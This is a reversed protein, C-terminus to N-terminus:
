TDDPITLNSQSPAPPHVQSLVPATTAAADAVEGETVPGAGNAGERKEEEEGQTPESKLDPTTDKPNEGQEDLQIASPEGSPKETNDAVVEKEAFSSSPAVASPAPAAAVPTPKPVAAKSNAGAM